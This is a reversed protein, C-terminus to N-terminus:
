IGFTSNTVLNGRIRLDASNVAAICAPYIVYPGPMVTKVGVIENEAVTTNAPLFVAYIGLYCNELRNAKVLSDNVDALFVGMFNFRLTLNEVLIDSSYAAVVGEINKELEMDRITIDTSNVVIVCGADPPIQRNSENVWYYIPKDNVTNSVDVDNILQDLTPPRIRPDGVGFNWMVSDAIINDRLSNNGSNFLGVGVMFNSSITNNAISNNYSSFLNIGAINYKAVVNRVVSENTYALLVGQGNSTLNLDRITIRTSNVIGVYGADDPITQDTKNVLYYVPKEDITNTTDIDHVFEDLREGQVNLDAWNDMMENNRLIMSTSYSVEIGVSNNIFMNGSVYTASSYQQLSLGVRNGLAKNAYIRNNYGRITGIGQDNYTITNNYANVNWSRHMLLGGGTNNTIIAQTLNIDHSNPSIHVGWDAHNDRSIIDSIQIDGVEAMIVLGGGGHGPPGSSNMFTFGSVSVDNACLAVVNQVGNGDIITSTKDEGIFSIAKDITANEVYTGARVFVTDGDSAADIAAQVTPYDDPVTILSARASQIRIAAVLTSALLTAVM